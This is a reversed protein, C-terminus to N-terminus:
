GVDDRAGAFAHSMIQQLEDQGIEDVLGTAVADAQLVDVAERLELEGAGVLYARAWARLRFVELLCFDIAVAGAAFDRHVPATM